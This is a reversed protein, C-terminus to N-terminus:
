LLYNKRLAAIGKQKLKLAGYQLWGEKRMDNLRVKLTKENISMGSLTLSKLLDGQSPHLGLKTAYGQLCLAIALKAKPSMPTVFRVSSDVIEFEVPWKLSSPKDAFLSQIVANVQEDWESDSYSMGFLLKLVQKAQRAYDVVRKPSVTRPLGTHYLDNRLKHFVNIDSEITSLLPELAVVFTLLSPFDHKRQTWEKQSIGLPPPKGILQRHNEVYHILLFEIANDVAILGFRQGCSLKTTALFHGLAIQDIAESLWNEM